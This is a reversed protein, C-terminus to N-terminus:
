INRMDFVRGPGLDFDALPRPPAFGATPRGPSLTAGALADSVDLGADGLGADDLGDDGL